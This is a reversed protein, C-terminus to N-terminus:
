SENNEKNISVKLGLHKLLVKINLFIHTLVLATFIYSINRHFDAVNVNFITEFRGQKIMTAGSFFMLVFSIILSIDTVKKIMLKKPM